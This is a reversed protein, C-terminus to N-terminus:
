WHGEVDPSRAPELTGAQFQQIAQEITGQAGTIVQVGAATLTQFAKPGCHGTLVVQAGTTSINQAAQIGAGQALQLNQANDVVESDGSDTDYILFWKARGFRPDVPADMSRGSASVAIRM